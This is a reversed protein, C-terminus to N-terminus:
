PAIIGHQRLAHLVAAVATRAAIDVTTGGAPDAIAPQRPGVVQQGNIMVRAGTIQGVLWTTGSWHAQMAAERIWATMGPQPAVFRWGGESWGALHGAHGAWAGSPANGVIWTQGPEPAAPPTEIGAAEIVPQVVMDLLTLAENHTVEKQAQGAALLPLMLRPSTDTM